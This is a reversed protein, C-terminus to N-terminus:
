RSYLSGSGRVPKFTGVLEWLSLLAELPEWLSLFAGVLDRTNPGGLLGLLSSITGLPEGLSWFARPNASGLTFM